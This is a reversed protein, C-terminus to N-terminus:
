VCTPALEKLTPSMRWGAASGLDSAAKHFDLGSLLRKDKLVAAGLCVGVSTEVYLHFASAIADAQKDTLGIAAM